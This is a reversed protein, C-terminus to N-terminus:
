QLLFDCDTSKWLSLQHLNNVKGWIRLFFNFFIGLVTNSPTSEKECMKVTQIATKITTCSVLMKPRKKHKLNGTKTAWKGPSIDHDSKQSFPAFGVSVNPSGIKRHIFDFILYFILFKWAFCWFVLFGSFGPKVHLKKCNPPKLFV